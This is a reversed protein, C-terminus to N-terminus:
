NEKRSKKRKPTKKAAKSKKQGQDGSPDSPRKTPGDPTQSAGITPDILNGVTDRDVFARIFEENLMPALEAGLSQIAISLSALAGKDLTSAFVETEDFANGYQSPVLERPEAYPHCLDLEMVKAEFLQTLVKALLRRVPYAAPSNANVINVAKEYAGVRILQSLSWQKKEAAQRLLGLEREDFRTSLTTSVAPDQKAM